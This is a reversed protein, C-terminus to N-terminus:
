FIVRATNQGCPAPRCLSVSKGLVHCEFADDNTARALVVQFVDV